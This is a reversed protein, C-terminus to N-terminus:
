YLGNDYVIFYNTPNQFVPSLNFIKHIRVYNALVSNYNEWITRKRIEKAQNPGAIKIQEYISLKQVKNNVQPKKEIKNDLLLMNKNSEKHVLIYIHVLFIHNYYLM